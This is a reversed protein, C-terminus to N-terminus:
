IGRRRLITASVGPFRANSRRGSRNVWWGIASWGAVIWGAGQLVEELQNKPAKRRRIGWVALMLAAIGFAAQYTSQVFEVAVDLALPFGNVVAAAVALFALLIWMDSSKRM